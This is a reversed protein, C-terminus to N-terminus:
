VFPPLWHRKATDDVTSNAGETFGRARKIADIDLRLLQVTAVDPTLEGSEYMQRIRRREEVLSTELRPQYSM